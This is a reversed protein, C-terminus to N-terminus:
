SNDKNKSFENAVLPLTLIKSEITNIVSNQIHNKSMLSRREDMVAKSTAQYRSLYNKYRLEAM